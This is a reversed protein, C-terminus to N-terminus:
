KKKKRKSRPASSRVPSPNARSTSKVGPTVLGAQDPESIPVVPSAQVPGSTTAEAKAARRANIRRSLAIIAPQRDKLQALVCPAVFISSYTGVMVGVALALALDILTGASFIGAGVVLIALIPFM